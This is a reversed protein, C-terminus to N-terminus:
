KKSVEKKSEKEREEAVLAPYVTQILEKLKASDSFDKGITRLIKNRYSLIEGDAMDVNHQLQVRISDNAKVVDTSILLKADDRLKEYYFVKGISDACIKAPSKAVNAM